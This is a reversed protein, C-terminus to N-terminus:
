FAALFFFMSVNKEQVVQIENLSHRDDETNDDEKHVPGNYIILLAFLCYYIGSAKKDEVTNYTALNWGVKRERM